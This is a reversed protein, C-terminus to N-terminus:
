LERGEVEIKLKDVQAALDPQAPYLALVKRFVTLAQADFGTKRLIAAMGTLAGFHRPERKLVQDIDAMAGDYNGALFRVTARKNWAEAWDPELEITEDLVQQALPLQGAGIAGVARQMLLDATASDSRLWLREIAGAVARGVDAEDAVALRKFLGDLATQRLVAPTPKPALARKLAEAKQAPTEAPPKPKPLADADIRSHGSPDLPTLQIGGPGFVRAGPIRDFPSPLGPSQGDGFPGRLSPREDAAAPRICVCGVLAAFAVSRGIRIMLSSSKSM